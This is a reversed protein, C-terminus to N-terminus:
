TTKKNIEKIMRNVVDICVGLLDQCENIDYIKEPHQTPNRFSSRINDLHNVIIKNPIKGHNKNTLDNTLQGWTKNIISVRFFNKYYLKLVAETARLIHFSAATPREYVICKGAEAFDYQSIEPLSNFTSPALLSSINESLKKVDYRKDTTVYAFIGQTEAEFTNRLDTVLKSIQKAEDQTLKFISAVGGNKLYIDSKKELENKFTELEMAARKTVHLNLSDLSAFFWRLNVLIGGETIVPSEITADQLFRIITGLFIYDFISKSIM